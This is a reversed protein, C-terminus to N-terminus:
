SHGGARLRDLQRILGNAMSADAPSSIGNQLNMLLEYLDKSHIFRQVPDLAPDISQVLAADAKNQASLKTM